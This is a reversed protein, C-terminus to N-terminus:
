LGVSCSSAAGVIVDGCVWGVAALACLCCIVLVVAVVIIIATRNGGSPDTQQSQM